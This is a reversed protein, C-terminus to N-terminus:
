LRKGENVQDVTICYDENVCHNDKCDKATLHNNKCDKAM